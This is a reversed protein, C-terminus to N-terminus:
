KYIITLKKKKFLQIISKKKILLGKKIYDKKFYSYNKKKFNLEEKVIIKKQLSNILKIM